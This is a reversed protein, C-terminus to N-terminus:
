DRLRVGPTEGYGIVAAQGERAISLRAAETVLQNIFSNASTALLGRADIQALAQQRAALEAGAANVNQAAEVIAEISDFGYGVPRLGEGPWPVLRMYDPSVFRFAAGSDHDIYGHSVGRFQDDHKLVAGCDPGECFMVLGQDNTGAGEDPYGLGNTVSLVAGNEWIALDVWPEDDDELTLAVM